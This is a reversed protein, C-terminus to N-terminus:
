EYGGVPLPQRYMISDRAIESAAGGGNPMNCSDDVEGNAVQRVIPRPVAPM